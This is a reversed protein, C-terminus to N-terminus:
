FFVNIDTMIDFIDGYTTETAFVDTEASLSTKTGTPSGDIETVANGGFSPFSLYTTLSDFSDRTSQFVIQITNFPDTACGYDAVEESPYTWTFTTPYTLVRVNLEKHGHM